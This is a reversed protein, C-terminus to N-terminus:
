GKEQTAEQSNQVLVSLITADRAQLQLHYSNLLSTDFRM